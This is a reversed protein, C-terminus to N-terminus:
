NVLLVLHKKAFPRRKVGKREEFKDMSELFVNIPKNFLEEIEKRIKTERDKWLLFDQLM